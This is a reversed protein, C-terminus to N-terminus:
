LKKMLEDVSMKSPDQDQGVAQAAEGGVLCHESGDLAGAEIQDLFSYAM